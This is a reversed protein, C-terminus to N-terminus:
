YFFAQLTLLTLLSTESNDTFTIGTVHDNNTLM